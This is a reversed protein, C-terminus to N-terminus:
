RAFVPLDEEIEQYHSEPAGGSLQVETQIYARDSRGFSDDSPPHNLEPISRTEEAERIESM